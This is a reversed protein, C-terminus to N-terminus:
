NTVDRKPGSNLKKLAILVIMMFVNWLIIYLWFNAMFSTQCPTCELEPLCPECHITSTDLYYNIGLILNLVFWIIIVAKRRNM